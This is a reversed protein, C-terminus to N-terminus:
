LRGPEETWPIGWALINSPTAMGEEQPDEWGLFRVRMEQLEQMASPKKVVSGGSFSMLCSWSDGLIIDLTNLIRSLIIQWVFILFIEVQFLLCDTDFGLSVLHQFEWLLNELLWYLFAGVLRRFFISFRLYFIDFM